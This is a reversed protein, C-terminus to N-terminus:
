APLDTPVTSDAVIGDLGADRSQAAAGMGFRAFAEWAVRRAKAHLEASIRGTTRHDDLARLIADRADLFTPNPPTIKLGDVVLQWALQYGARDNNLVTRVGRTMKMLAACWVEGVNHEDSEGALTGYHFPYNDDYPARRIGGPNDVVWDGVVSKERALLNNQLTLAFYDSWGEGMGNSQPEELASANMAGGVLRNTLGHVYEHAVVDFDFATHRVGSVLGMNMVPSQGDPGTSMNATGRVRGSHARAWVADNSRGRGTFNIRQFNGADEDFGLMYLFDHMYNCFYFINLVKQDDGSPDTPAFQFSNGPLPTGTVTTSTAGLTARTSNGECKGEATWDVPFDPPPPALVVPYDGLPRAFHIEKRQSIGPSYEFVLGRATAHNMTSKSYLIEGDAKDAAVLLMYQDVYDALTVVM